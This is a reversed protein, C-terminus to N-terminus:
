DGERRRRRGDVAIRMEWIGNFLVSDGEQDRGESCFSASNRLLIEITNEGKQATGGSRATTKAVVHM